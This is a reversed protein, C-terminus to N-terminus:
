FRFTSSGFRLSHSLDMDDSRRRQGFTVKLPGRAQEIWDVKLINTRDSVLADLGDLPSAVEGLNHATLLRSQLTPSILEGGGNEMAGIPGTLLVMDEFGESAFYHECATPDGSLALALVKRGPVRSLMPVLDAFPRSTGDVELQYGRVEGILLLAVLGGEDADEQLKILQALLPEWGIARRVQFGKDECLFGIAQEALALHAYGCGVVAHRIRQVDQRVQEESDERLEVHFSQRGIQLKDGDNITVLPGAEGERSPLEEDNLFSGNTSNLDCLAPVSPDLLGHTRSAQDDNCLKVYNLVSLGEAVEPRLRNPRIDENTYQYYADSRGFVTPVEVPVRRGTGTHRLWLRRVAM